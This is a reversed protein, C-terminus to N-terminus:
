KRAWRVARFCVEMVSDEWPVLMLPSLNTIQTLQLWCFWLSLTNIIIILLVAKALKKIVVHKGDVAGVCHPFQWRQEFRSAVSEWTQTTPEPLYTPQMQKWVAVAVERVIKSVTRDGMRFNYAISKYSDGSAVYRFCVSIINTLYFFDFVHLMLKFIRLRYIYFYITM